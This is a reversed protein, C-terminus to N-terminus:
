GLMVGVGVIEVKGGWSRVMGVWVRGRMWKELKGWKRKRWVWIGCM